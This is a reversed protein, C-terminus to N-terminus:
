RLLLECPKIGTYKKFATSFHSISSYGLLMSVETVSLGKENLLYRAHEMRQRQYYDFITTGFIEKFGKKLYCENTGVKRSLERITIPQGIHQHLLDRAKIIKERDNENALFRCAFSEGARQEVLCELGYLLLMQLQTNIYINELVGSYTHNFINEIIGRIRNCLQVTHTFSQRKQFSLLTQATTSENAAFQQLYTPSFEVTVLDFTETQTHNHSTEAANCQKGNCDTRNCYRNGHMCFRLALYKKGNKGPEYHYVLMGIEEMSWQPLMKYRRLGYHVKGHLAKQEAFVETLEEQMVPRRHAIQLIDIDQMM